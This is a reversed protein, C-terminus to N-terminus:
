GMMSAPIKMGFGQKIRDVTPAIKGLSYLEEGTFEDFVRGSIQVLYRQDRITPLGRISLIFLDKQNLERGNVFIATNGAACNELMPYKFEEIFPPIIGLCPQGMVGWFGAQYDYWYNGPQIPGAMKEANKVSHDSLPQGNVFVKPRGARLNQSSRLFGRFSKKILSGFISESRKITRPRDEETNVEGSDQSISSQPFKNFSIEMETALSVDKASYQRSISRDVIMKEQADCKTNGSGYVSLTNHFSAYNPDKQSSSNPLSSHADDEAPLDIVHNPPSHKELLISSPFPPDQKMNSQDSKLSQDISLVNAEIDQSMTSHPFEHLPIEMETALSVDAASYQISTSRDAIAKAQVDSRTNNGSGYVSLTDDSAAYSPKQCPSDPFPLPVDEPPLNASDSMNNGQFIVRNSSQKELPIFSTFPPEQEIGSEDLKLGQDVSFVNAETDQSMSGHPFENFTIEMETAISVDEAHRLPSDVIAKEQVDCETNNGLGYVSLTNHSSAYNPDEQCPSDPIASLVDDEPPLNAFDSSIDKDGHFITCNPSDKELLISSPSSPEQKMDSEDSSLRQEISLDNVETDKHDISNDEHDSHSNMAGDSSYNQLTQLNENLAESSCDDNKACVQKSQKLLSLLLGKKEFEISVVASCAGCQLKQGNRPMVKLKPLKLLEFCSLCTLFPAGGTIPHCIRKSRCAVATSRPRQFGLPGPGGMGLALDLSSRTNTKRTFAHFHPPNARVPSFHWHLSAPNIPSNSSRSSFGSCTNQQPIQSLSNYCKSCSCAPYPHHLLTEDQHSCPLPQHLSRGLRQPLHSGKCGGFESPFNWPRYVDQGDSSCRTVWPAPGHNHNLYLPQSAQKAQMNPTYLNAPGERFYCDQGSRHSPLFPPPPMLESSAVKRDVKLIREGPKQMVECSRSLQDRLEDIKQLLEDRDHRLYEVRNPVLGCNSPWGEDSYSLNSSRRREAFGRGTRSSTALGDIEVGRWDM